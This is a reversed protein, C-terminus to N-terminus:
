RLIHRAPTFTRSCWVPVAALRVVRSCWSLDVVISLLLLLGLQLLSDDRLAQGAQVSALLVQPRGEVLRHGGGGGCCCCCGFRCGRGIHQAWSVAVRGCRLALRGGPGSCCHQHLVISEVGLQVCALARPAARRSGGPENLRLPIAEDSRHPTCPSRLGTMSPRQQQAQQCAHRCSTAPRWLLKAKNRPAHKLKAESHRLADDRRKVPKLAELPMDLRTISDSLTVPRGRRGHIETQRACLTHFDRPVLM